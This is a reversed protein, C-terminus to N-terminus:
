NNVLYVPTNNYILRMNHRATLCGASLRHRQCEVTCTHSTISTHKFGRPRFNVSLLTGNHCEFTSHGAPASVVSAMVYMCVYISTYMMYVCYVKYERGKTKIEDIRM